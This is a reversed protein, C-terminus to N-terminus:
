GLARRFNDIAILFLSIWSELWQRADVIANQDVLRNHKELLFDWYEELFLHLKAYNIQVDVTMRLLRQTSTPRNTNILDLISSKTLQTQLYLRNLRDQEIEMSPTGFVLPQRTTSRSLKNFYLRCLKILQKTAEFSKMRAHQDILDTSSAEVYWRLWSALEKDVNQWQDRAVRSLPRHLRQITADIEELCIRTLSAVRLSQETCTPLRTVQKCICSVSLPAFEEYPRSDPRTPDMLLDIQQLLEDLEVFEDLMGEYWSSPDNYRSPSDLALPLLRLKEKLGPLITRCLRSNTNSPLRLIDCMLMCKDFEVQRQLHFCTNQFIEQYKEASRQDPNDSRFCGVSKALSWASGEQREKLLARQYANM